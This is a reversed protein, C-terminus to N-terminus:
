PIGIDAANLQAIDAYAAYFRQRSFGSISHVDLAVDSHRQTLVFLSM